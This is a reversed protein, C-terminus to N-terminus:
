QDNPCLVHWLDTGEDEPEQWVVWLKANGGAVAAAMDPYMAAPFMSNTFGGTVSMVNNCTDCRVLYRAQIM